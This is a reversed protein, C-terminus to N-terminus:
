DNDQSGVIEVEKPKINVTFTYYDYEYSIAPIFVDEFYELEGLKYGFDSISKKDKAIGDLTILNSSFVMSNLFVSDPVRTTISSLLDENVIDQSDIFNELQILQQYKERFEEIEKEKEIIENIKSNSKKTEVQLKLSSTEKDLKNIVLLNMISYAIMGLVVIIALGYLVFEKNLSKDRKKNYSEFFNLDNV